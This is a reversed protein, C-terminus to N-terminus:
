FFFFGNGEKLIFICFSFYLCIPFTFVLPSGERFLARVEWELFDGEFLAM